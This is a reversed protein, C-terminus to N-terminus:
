WGDMDMESDCETNSTKAVHSLAKNSSCIQKNTTTLHRNKFAPYGM